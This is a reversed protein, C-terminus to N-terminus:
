LTFMCWDWYRIPHWAAPMLKKSIIKKSNESDHKNYWNILRVHVITEPDDQDFNVDDLNIDNLDIRLISM